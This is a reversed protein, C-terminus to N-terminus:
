YLFGSQKSKRYFCVFQIGGAIEMIYFYPIWHTHYNSLAFFRRNAQEPMPWKSGADPM